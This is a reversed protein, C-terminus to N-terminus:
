RKIEKTPLRASLTLQLFKQWEAATQFISAGKQEPTTDARVLIISDLAPIVTMEQGGSGSATFSGPPIASVTGAPGPTTIWWLYGYAGMVPVERNSISLPQTSETVWAEPVVQKGAWRGKQLYLMGFRMLDRPSLAMHYAPFRPAAQNYSYWTNEYPDFDQMCIPEAIRRQFAIFDGKATAREYLNGLVNFDWNNYFWFSGPAHSGRAPRNARMAATEAATPLYVGSRAMLLDRVTASRETETLPIDENIGFKSIPDTRAITGDAIAQGFMASMISKRVSAILMPKALAGDAIVVKGGTVVMFAAAGGKRAADRAKLLGAQDWGLAAASRAIPLDACRRVPHAVIPTPALGATVITLALLVRLM